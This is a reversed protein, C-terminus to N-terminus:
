MAVLSFKDHILDDAGKDEGGRNKSSKGSRRM